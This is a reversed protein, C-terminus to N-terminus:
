CHPVVGALARVRMLSRAEMTLERGWGQVPRDCRLDRTRTGDSGSKAGREHDRSDLRAPDLPNCISAAAPSEAIFRFRDKAAVGRRAVGCRRSRGSYGVRDREVLLGYGGTSSRVSSRVTGNDNYDYANKLRVLSLSKGGCRAALAQPYAYGNVGAFSDSWGSRAIRARCFSTGGATAHVLVGSWLTDDHPKWQTIGPGSDFGGVLWGGSGDQVAAWEWHQMLGNGFDFLGWTHDLSARWGTLAVHRGDYEIFGDARATAVPSSWDFTELWQPPSGAEGIPRHTATVGPCPNTLVLRVRRPGKDLAFRWRGARYRISIGRVAVGPGAIPATGLDWFTAEVGTQPVTPWYTLEASTLNVKGGGRLWDLRLLLSSRM